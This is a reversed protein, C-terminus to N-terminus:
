NKEIIDNYIDEPIEHFLQMIFSCIEKEGALGDERWKNIRQIADGFTGFKYSSINGTLEIM